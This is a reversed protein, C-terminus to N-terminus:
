SRDFLGISTSALRSTLGLLGKAQSKFALDNWASRKVKVIPLFNIDIRFPLHQQQGPIEPTENAKQLSTHMRFLSIPFQRYKCARTATTSSAGGAVELSVRWAMMARGHQLSLSFRSLIRCLTHETWIKRQTIDKGMQMAVM